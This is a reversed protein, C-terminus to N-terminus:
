HDIQKDQEEPRAPSGDRLRALLEQRSAVGMKRYMSALQNAVTRPSTGRARAIQSSSAGTRLLEVIAREAPTLRGTDGTELPVDFVIFEHRGVHFREASSGAPLVEHHRGSRDRGM